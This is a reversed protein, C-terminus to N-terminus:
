RGPKREPSWSPLRRTPNGQYRHVRWLLFLASLVAAIRSLRGAAVWAEVLYPWYGSLRAGFTVEIATGILVALVPLALGLWKDRLDWKKSSMAVFAGIVWIPQYIAGGLGLLLVAIAELRDRMVIVLLAAGIRKLRLAVARSIVELRSPKLELDAPDISFEVGAADREDDPASRAATAPRPEDADPSKRESGPRAPANAASPSGSGPWRPRLRASLGNNRASGGEGRGAGRSPAPESIERTAKDTRAPTGAPSSPGAPKQGTASDNGTPGPTGASNDGDSSSGTAGSEDQDASVQDPSVPPGAWAGNSASLPQGVAVQSGALVPLGAPALPNSSISPTTTATLRVASGPMNATATPLIVPPMLPPQGISPTVPPPWVQRQSGSARSEAAREKAPDRQSTEHEDWAKRAAVRARERAVLAIPDGLGALTRRVQAATPNAIGGCEADIRARTHDLLAQRAAPELGAKAALSLRNLYDRILQEAPRNM